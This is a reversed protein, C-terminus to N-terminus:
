QENLSAALDELSEDDVTYDDRDQNDTYSDRDQGSTGDLDDDNVGETASVAAAAAEVTATDIPEGWGNFYGVFERTEADDVRYILNRVGKDTFIDVVGAAADGPEEANMTFALKVYFDKSM